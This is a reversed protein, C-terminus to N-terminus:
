SGDFGYLRLLTELSGKTDPLAHDSTRSWTIGDVSTWVTLGDGSRGEDYGTAVLGPGGAAVSHIVQFGPGGLVDPQAPVRSWTAGDPSTWVAASATVPDKGGGAAGGAVLGPGGESVAFINIGREIEAALTWHLGDPSTWVAGAGTATAAFGGRFTDGVVV